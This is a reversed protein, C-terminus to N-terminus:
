KKTPPTTTPQDGDLFAAIDANNRFASDSDADEPVTLEVPTGLQGEGDADADENAGTEYDDQNNIFNDLEVGLGSTEEEPLDEALQEVIPETTFIQEPIETDQGRQNPTEPNSM